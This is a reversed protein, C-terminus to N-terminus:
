ENHDLSIKSMAYHSYNDANKMAKQPAFHRFTEKEKVCNTCVICSVNVSVYSYDGTGVAMHSVEHIILETLDRHDRRARCKPDM